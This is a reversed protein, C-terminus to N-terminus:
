YKPCGLGHGVQNHRKLDPALAPGAHRPSAPKYTNYKIPDGLATCVPTVATPPEIGTTAFCGGLMMSLLLVTLVRM